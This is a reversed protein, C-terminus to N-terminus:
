EDLEFEDDDEPEDEGDMAGSPQFDLAPEIGGGAFAERIKAEVEDYAEPNNKFYMRANDRGQGIKEGNYSFWAGSKVIIDYSREGLNM